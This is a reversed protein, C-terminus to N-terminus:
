KVLNQNICKYTQTLQTIVLQSDGFIHATRAGMELLIELGVILAEYEAENNSCNYKLEFSFKTQIRTLSIILIGVGVGKGHKLRDFYLHWPRIEVFGAMENIELCPHDTLFDAIAQGQVAKM